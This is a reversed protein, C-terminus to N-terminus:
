PAPQWAGPRQYPVPTLWYLTECRQDACRGTFFRSGVLYENSTEASPGIIVSEGPNLALVTRLDDFAYQDRAPVQRVGDETQAWTIGGRDHRVEFSLQLDIRGGMEPHLAYDVNVVKKGEAFTKGVLQNNAQYSFFTESDRIKGIEIAVALGAPTLLQDKRVDAAGAELITRIAPWAEASVAGLRVGNRTLRALLKPNARLEDVHNWIKRSHRVGDVPLEARFVEFAVDVVHVTDAFASSPEPAASSPPGVAAAPHGVEEHPSRLPRAGRLRSAPSGCGWGLLAIALFASLRAHFVGGKMIAAAM